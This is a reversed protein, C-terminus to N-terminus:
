ENEIVKSLMMTAQIQLSNSRAFDSAACGSSYVLFTKIVKWFINGIVTLLVCVTSLLLRLHIM